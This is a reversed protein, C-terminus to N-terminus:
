DLKLPLVEFAMIPANLTNNTLFQEKLILDCSLNFASLTLKGYGKVQLFNESFNEDGLPILSMKLLLRLSSIIMLTIISKLLSMGETLHEDLQLTYPLVM